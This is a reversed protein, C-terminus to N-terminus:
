SMTIKKLSLLINNDLIRKGASSASKERIKKSYNAFFVKM